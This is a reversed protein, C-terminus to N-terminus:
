RWQKASYTRKSDFCRVARFAEQRRKNGAAVKANVNKFMADFCGACMAPDPSEGRATYGDRGGAHAGIAFVCSAAAISCFTAFAPLKMARRRLDSSRRTPFP